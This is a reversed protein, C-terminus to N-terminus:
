RAENIRHASRFYLWQWSKSCHSLKCVSNVLSQVYCVIAMLLGARLLMGYLSYLNVRTLSQGQSICHRGRRVGADVNMAAAVTELTIILVISYSRPQLAIKARM